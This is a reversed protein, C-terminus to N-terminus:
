SKMWQLPRVPLEKKIIRTFYDAFTSCFDKESEFSAAGMDQFDMGITLYDNKLFSELAKLTTTKGYQRARNIAFYKGKDVLEKIYLLNNKNDAMYHLDPLCVGEVNFEKSM